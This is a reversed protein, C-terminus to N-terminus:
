KSIANRMKYKKFIEYKAQIESLTRKSHEIQKIVNARFLHDTVPSREYLKQFERIIFNIQNIHDVFAEKEYQEPDNMLRFYWKKSESLRKKDLMIM